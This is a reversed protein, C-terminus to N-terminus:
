EQKIRVYSFMLNISCQILFQSLTMYAKICRLVQRPHEKQLYGSVQTGIKM